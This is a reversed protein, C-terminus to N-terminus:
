YVVASPRPGLALFVLHQGVREVSERGIVAHLGAGEEGVCVDRVAMRVGVPKVRKRGVRVIGQLLELVVYPRVAGVRMESAPRRLRLM